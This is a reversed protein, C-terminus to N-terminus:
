CNKKKKRIRSKLTKVLLKTTAIIIIIFPIKVGHLRNVIGRSREEYGVM